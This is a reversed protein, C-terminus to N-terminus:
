EKVGIAEVFEGAVGLTVDTVALVTQLVVDVAGVAFVTSQKIFSASFHILVRAAEIAEVQHDMTM